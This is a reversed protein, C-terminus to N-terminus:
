SESLHFVLTVTLEFPIPNGNLLLPAYQWQKVADIAAATLLAHGKIVSISQVFGSADVVADLLVIGQVHSAQAMIPYVPEVRHMLAPVKLDGGIRRIETRAPAPPPPPAEAVIPIGGVVGGVVGGDVADPVDAPGGIPEPEITAPAETPAASANAAPTLAPRPQVSPPPPPPPPPAVAVDAIFAAMPSVKPLTASAAILSGIAVTAVVASEIVSSIVIPMVPRNPVHAVHGAVLDFM